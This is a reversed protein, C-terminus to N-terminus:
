VMAMMAAFEERLTQENSDDTKGAKTMADNARELSKGQLKPSNDAVLRMEDMDGNCHLVLDCGAAFIAKCREGCDGSLAHMSVDDSMLLGDFGLQGRIIESIVVKSTTAPVGEDLASYVIHATMAMKIDALQKFPVFDVAELEARAADVVPLELHSDSKSRGQGPIHKIVPMVGGAILGDCAARGLKTVLHPDSGYSRDGIADHASPALVDLVPLCDITIGLKLLDFAHLRSMLWSARLGLVEDQGYLAGIAAAPPYKAWHPPRLRQVRGGEQDLLIPANANGVAERMSACLDAVQSPDDINRAFLIFGWPKQDRFFAVEEANLSLDLCGATFSKAGM